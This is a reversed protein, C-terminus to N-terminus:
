DECPITNGTTLAKLRQMTTTPPDAIFKFLRSKRWDEEVLSRAFKMNNEYFHSKNHHSAMKEVFDYRLGDIILLVAKSFTVWPVDESMRTDFQRVDIMPQKGDSDMLVFSLPKKAITHNSLEIRTLFFGKTFMFLGFLFTSALWALIFGSKLPFSTRLQQVAM